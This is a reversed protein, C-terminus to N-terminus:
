EIILQPFEPESRGQDHGEPWPCKILFVILISSINRFHNYLYPNNQNGLITSPYPQNEGSVFIILEQLIIHDKIIM